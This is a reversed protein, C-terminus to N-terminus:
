ACQFLFVSFTCVGQKVLAAARGPTAVVVHPKRSVALSQQMQSMGGIITCVNVRLPAGVAQLQEAIQVALERAPTLILAMIGYPDAGLKQLIPLGFALTKGSGTQHLTFHAMTVTVARSLMVEACGIVDRGAIAPPVCGCQIPTPQHMGLSRLSECLWPALGLQAFTPSDVSPVPEPTASRVSGAVAVAGATPARRERPASSFLPVDSDDSEGSGVQVAAPAVEVLELAPEPQAVSPAADDEDVVFVRRREVKELSAEPGLPRKKM